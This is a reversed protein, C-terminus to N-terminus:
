YGGEEDYKNSLFQKDEKNKVFLSSVILMLVKLLNM